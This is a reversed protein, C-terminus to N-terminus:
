QLGLADLTAQELRPEIPADITRWFPGCEAHSSTLSVGQERWRAMVNQSAPSPLVKHGIELWAVPCSPVFNHLRANAMELALRSPLQYGAIELGRGARLENWLTKRDFAMGDTRLATATSELRLFQDIQQEGNLVPQWLLLQELETTRQSLEAALLGGLRLGWVTVPLKFENVLYDLAFSADELWMQWSAQSFEGDGDGCGSFDLLLVRCGAAAMKRAQSAVVHRSMHMEDTFAHLFLVSRQAQADSPELLLHFLRRQPHELFDARISCKESNM